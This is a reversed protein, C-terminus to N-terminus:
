RDIIGGNIKYKETVNGNQIENDIISNIKIINDYYCSIWKDGRNINLNKYLTQVNKKKCEYVMMWM